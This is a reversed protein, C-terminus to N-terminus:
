LLTKVAMMMLLLVLAITGDGSVLTFKGGVTPHPILTFPTYTTAVPEPTPEPDDNVDPTEYDALLPLLFDGVSGTPAEQEQDFPSAFPNSSGFRTPPLAM